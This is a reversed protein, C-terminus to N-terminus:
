RLRINHYDSPTGAVTTNGSAFIISATSPDNPDPIVLVGDGDGPKAPPKAWDIESVFEKPVRAIGALSSYKLDLRDTHNVLLVLRKQGGPGVLFYTADSSYADGTLNLDLHGSADGQADRVWSAIGPDMDDVSALRYQDVGPIAPADVAAIGIPTYDKASVVTQPREAFVAAIALMVGAALAIKVVPHSSDRKIAEIKVDESGPMARLVGALSGMQAVHDGLHKSLYTEPLVLESLEMAGRTVTFFTQTSCCLKQLAQLTAKGSVFMRAQTPHDSRTVYRADFMEDTTRVLVRGETARTGKPVVSMNFTAPAQMRLNVAPTNVDVSFRVITPLRNFNGSVVLDNGDRFIEGKLLRSLARAENEIDKYGSFLRSSRVLAIVAGTIGTLVLIVIALTYQSM